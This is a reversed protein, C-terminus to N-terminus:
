WISVFKDGHSSLFATDQMTGLPFTCRVPWQWNPYTSQRAPHWVPLPHGGKSSNSIFMRMITLSAPTAPAKANAAQLPFSLTLSSKLFSRSRAEVALSIVRGV